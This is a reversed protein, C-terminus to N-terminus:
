ARKRRRLLSYGGCALGALAMAYTSPEPVPTLQFGNLIVFPDDTPSGSLVLRGQADSNVNIFVTYDNGRTFSAFPVSGNGTTVQTASGNVSWTGGAGAGGNSGYVYLTYPSNAALGSITMTPLSGSSPNAIGLYDNLLSMNAANGNPNPPVYAYQVESPNDQFTWNAFSLSVGTTQGSSNLLGTSPSPSNPDSFVIGNWTGTPTGLAPDDHASGDARLVGNGAYTTGPIGGRAGNLDVSLIAAQAQSMWALLALGLTMVGSMTSAMLKAHFARM